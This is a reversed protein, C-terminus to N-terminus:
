PSKSQPLYNHNRKKVFHIGFVSSDGVFYKYTLIVFIIFYIIGFYIVNSIECMMPMLYVIYFFYSYLILHINSRNTGKRGQIKNYYVYSFMFSVIITVIYMGFLGFDHYPRRFFTYINGAHGAVRRIELQNLYETDRLGLKVFVPNLKALTEQAFYQVKSPKDLMFLNFNIIPAGMYVAIHDLFTRNTSRGIIGSVQVAYFLLLVIIMVLSGTRFIRRFNRKKHIWLNRRCIIVYGMFVAAGTLQVYNGRQGNMINAPITAIIPLLFIANKRIKERAGVVNNLFIFMCVYVTARLLLAAMTTIRSTEIVKNSVFSLSHKFAGIASLSLAGSFGNARVTKIIDRCYIYECLICCLISIIIKITSPHIGDICELSDLARPKRSISKTFLETVIFVVMGSLIIFTVYLSFSSNSVGWSITAWIATISCLLFLGCMIFSPSFFDYECAWFVVSLLLFSGICIMSLYLM